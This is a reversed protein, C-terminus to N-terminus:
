KVKEWEKTGDPNDVLQYKLKGQYNDKCAQVYGKEFIALKEKEENAKAEKRNEYGAWLMAIAFSLWLVIMIILPKSEMDM